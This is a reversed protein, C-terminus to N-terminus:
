LRCRILLNLMTSYGEEQVEQCLTWPDWMCLLKGKQNGENFGTESSTTTFWNTEQAETCHEWPVEAAKEQVRHFENGIQLKGTYCFQWVENACVQLSSPWHSQRGNKQLRTLLEQVRIFFSDLIRHIRLSCELWSYCWLWWQGRRWVRFHRRCFNGRRKKWRMHRWRGCLLAEDAHPKNCRSDIGYSSSTLMKWRM